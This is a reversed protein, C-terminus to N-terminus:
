SNNEEILDELLDDWSDEPRKFKDPDKEGTGLEPRGLKGDDHKTESSDNEIDEFDWDEDNEAESDNMLNDFDEGTEEDRIQDIVSSNDVGERSDLDGEEFQSMDAVNALRSKKGKSIESGDPHLGKSALYNDIWSQEAFFGQGHNGSGYIRLYLRGRPNAKVRTGDGTGLIMSSANSDTRGCNIRVGLNAKTEGSIIKADPRQTAIVLHVGAARGLRAVSGIIMAAEGKMEDEAKAEESKVGSPSLLEGAEDVMVLLAQGKEPLDLFNNVGLQEMEAYRKMMTQQAFRLVTLADEIETAIGLVVNSYARFSSLEVKKLDIGLFRWSDPRMIASFIINRQVVSNHTVFANGHEGGAAFLRDLSDVEICRAPEPNIEKISKIKM